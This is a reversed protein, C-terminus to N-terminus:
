GKTVPTVPVRAAKIKRWIIRLVIFSPIGLIIAIPLLVGLLRILGFIVEQAMELGDGVADTLKDLFGGGNTKVIVAPPQLLVTITSLSAQNELYRLRGEIQEIEGRVNGLYNQVELVESVKVARKMIELYQEELARKTKLQASLDVFEETVDQGTLKERIVRNGLARLQSVADDFRDAPVRLTITITTSTSDYQRSESTVVFGKFSNAIATIKNNAEQPNDVLLDLEGNRIIKRQFQENTAAQVTNGLSLPKAANEVPVGAPMVDQSKIDMDAAPAQKARVSGGSPASQVMPAPASPMTANHESRSRGCASIFLSILILFIVIRNTKM